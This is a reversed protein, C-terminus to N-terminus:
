ARRAWEITRRLGEERGVVDRYGLQNRIRSTDAVWHQDLNGQMRQHEPATDRPVVSFEGRWGTLRAVEQAWELETLAGSDGVNFVHSTARDGAALAIAAGVNEVYGRTGRWRAEPEEFVIQPVGADMQKVLSGFRHLPDRPGYVIPLRLVCGVVDPNGLVAREVPIKDYQDDLWGFVSQLKRVQAPPYTQLTTRVASDETLPLPELGGPELRHLVGCARYVDMSSLAVVRRAIGRIVEMLAKAQAGSSLIVDVVTDPGFERLAEAHEALRHRDGVIEKVGPPLPSTSRGRHFVAVDHGVAALHQVVFPGIFGTGGIVLVKM